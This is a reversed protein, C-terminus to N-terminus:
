KGISAFVNQFFAGLIPVPNAKGSVATLIGYLFLIGFFVWFGISIMWSDFYGVVYGFIMYAIWLGLSQRIHFSTFPNKKDNNMVLAIVVGILTLYSVFAMTKGQEITNQDM